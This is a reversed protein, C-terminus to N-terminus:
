KLKTSKSHLKEEMPETTTNLMTDVQDVWVRAIMIRGTSECMRVSLRQGENVNEMGHMSVAEM